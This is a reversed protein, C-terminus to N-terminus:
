NLLEEKDYTETYSDKINKLLEKQNKIIDFIMFAVHLLIYLGALINITVSLVFM